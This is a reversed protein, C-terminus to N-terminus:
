PAGRELAYEFEALSIAGSAYRECLDLLTPGVAIEVAGYCVGGPHPAEHAVVRAAAGHAGARDILDGPSAGGTMVFFRPGPM